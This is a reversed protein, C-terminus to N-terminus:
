RVGSAIRVEVEIEIPGGADHLERRIEERVARRVEYPLGIYAQGSSAGGREVPDFYADFSPLM